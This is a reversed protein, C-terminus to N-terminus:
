ASKRSFSRKKPKEDAAEYKEILDQHDRWDEFRSYDRNFCLHFGDCRGARNKTLKPMNAALAKVAEQRGETRDEKAPKPSGDRKHWTLACLKWNKMPRTDVGNAQIMWDAATYFDHFYEGDLKYGKEAIYECVEDVSPPNDAVVGKVKVKKKKEEQETESDQGVAGQYSGWELVTIFTFRKDSKKGILRDGIMDSLIRCVRDRKLSPMANTFSRITVVLQGPKLKIKEGKFTDGAEETSEEVPEAEEVADGSPSTEESRDQEEPEFSEALMKTLDLEDLPGDLGVLGTEKPLSETVEAVEEAM